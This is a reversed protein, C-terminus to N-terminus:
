EPSTSSARSAAVEALAWLVEATLRLSLVSHDRPQRVLALEPALLGFSGEPQQQDLLYALAEDLWPGRLRLRAAARVVAAVASLDGVRAFSLATAGLVRTWSRRDALHEPHSPPSALTVSQAFALLDRRSGGLFASPDRLLDGGPPPHGSTGLAEPREIRDCLWLALTHLPATTRSPAPSGIAKLWSRARRSSATLSV